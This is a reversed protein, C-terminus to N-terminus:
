ARHRRRKPKGAPAHGTREKLVKQREVIADLVRASDSETFPNILAARTKFETEYADGFDELSLMTRGAMQARHVARETIDMLDGRLGECACFFRQAVREESIDFDVPIPLRAALARLMEKFEVESADKLYDFRELEAVARFRQNLENNQAIYEAVVQTGVFVFPAKCVNMNSRVWRQSQGQFRLTKEELFLHAEDVLVGSAARLVDQSYDLREAAKLSQHAFPHKAAKLLEREVYEIGYSSQKPPEILLLGKALDPQEVSLRAMANKIFSSKGARSEGRIQLGRPNGDRDRMLLCETLLKYASQCDRTWFFFSWADPAASPVGVAGPAGSADTPAETPM